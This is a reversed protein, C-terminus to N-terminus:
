ISVYKHLTQRVSGPKQLMESYMAEIKEGLGVDYLNVAFLAPNSLIEKIDRRNRTDELMPDPSLEMANGADDTAHLYRLWGAIALPIYVLRGATGKAAHAKIAEGFRIPIKLSTDTAIRQPSDPMFPNPLREGLVEALFDTPNIIKPDTVTPLGEKYGVGRALAVL